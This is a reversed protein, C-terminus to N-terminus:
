YVKLLASQAGDQPHTEGLWSLAKSCLSFNGVSSSKQKMSVRGSNGAQQCVRCIKYKGDRMFVHTLEKFLEGRRQLVRFVLLYLNYILCWKYKIVIRSKFHWRFSRSQSSGLIQRPCILTNPKGSKEKPEESSERSPWSLVLAWLQM